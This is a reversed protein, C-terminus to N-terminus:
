RIHVVFRQRTSKEAGAHDPVVEFDWTEGPGMRVRAPRASTQSAPLSAGDKAIPHWQQVTSDERLSVDALGNPLIHILRFRYTRGVELQVPAPDAGVSVVIGLLAFVSSRIM